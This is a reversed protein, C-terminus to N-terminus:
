SQHSCSAALSRTMAPQKTALALGFIQLLLFSIAYNTGVLLFEMVPARHVSVIHLKIAATFVTLFGGVGCGM